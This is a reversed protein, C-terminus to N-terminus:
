RSGTFDKNDNNNRCNNDKQKTAAFASLSFLLERFSLFVNARKQCLSVILVQLSFHCPSPVGLMDILPTIVLLM